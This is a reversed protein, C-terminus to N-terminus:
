VCRSTYLLCLYALAEFTQDGDRMIYSFSLNTEQTGHVTSVQGDPDLLFGVHMPIARGSEGQTFRVALRAPYVKGFDAVISGTPLMRVSVPAIVHEDFDTRQVFTRTFPATGAPGIVGPSGWAADDYGVTNWGVPHARGDVWEVFDM